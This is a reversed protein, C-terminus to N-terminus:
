IGLEARRKIRLWIGDKARVTLHAIPVPVRDSVTVFEFERLLIALITVGEIMAFGAGTCVRPGSSFPMYATRACARGNPTGWRAPDFGDPDDWLRTHRHLHWPSLVIQAGRKIVRDRFRTQARAERVMPYGSYNHTLVFLADSKEVAAQMKKADSMTGTGGNLSVSGARIQMAMEYGTAADATEIAGNLGYRSDNAIRIAEEDTSFGIICGVPGFVEEQALKKDFLENAREEAQLQQERHLLFSQYTGRLQTLHGRDLEAIVQRNILWEVRRLM